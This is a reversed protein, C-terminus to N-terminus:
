RLLVNKLTINRSLKSWCATWAYSFSWYSNGDPAVILAQEAHEKELWERNRFLGTAQYEDIRGVWKKSKPPHFTWGSAEMLAKQLERKRENLLRVQEQIEIFEALNADVEVQVTKRVSPRRKKGAM